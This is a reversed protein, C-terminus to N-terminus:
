GAGEVPVPGTSNRIVLESPLKKAQVPPTVQAELRGIILETAARGLAQMPLRVTTLLPSVFAAYTDDFGVVSVDDPVRLAYQYLCQLVGAALIDNSAFVATPRPRLALFREMARYGHEHASRDALTYYSGFSILREDAPLGCKRLSDRYAGLREQEVYRPIPNDHVAPDQGIFAIQKHGLSMLHDMAAVAGTYNDVVVRDVEELVPREVQVAPIGRDTTLRVNEPDIPTTFMIADARWRFFTEIGHRETESSGQVNYTLVSYGQELAYTEAGLAVQVFFPNPFTSQLIHGIIRTRKRRLSQAISNVRYDTARIAEVVRQQTAEAVYGNAHVVRAVTATSVNAHKAVDRITSAKRLHGM